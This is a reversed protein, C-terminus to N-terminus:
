GRIAEIGGMIQWYLDTGKCARVDGTGYRQKNIRKRQSARSTECWFTKCWHHEEVEPISNSWWSKLEQETITNERHCSVRFRFDRGETILWRIFVRLLGADCNAISVDMNTKRGEGWYLACVIAFMADHAVRERGVSKWGDYRATTSPRRGLFRPKARQKLCSIQEDTLCIDRVWRSVSSRSVCLEKEIQKISWGNKRLAIARDKQQNKM